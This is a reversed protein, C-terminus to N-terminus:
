YNQVSIIILSDSKRPIIQTFFEHIDFTRLLTLCYTKLILPQKPALRINLRFWEKSHSNNNNNKESSTNINRSVARMQKTPGRLNNTKRLGHGPNTETSDNNKGLANTLASVGAVSILM